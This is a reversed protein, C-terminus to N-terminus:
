EFLSFFDDGILSDTSVDFSRHGRPLPEDEFQRTPLISPEVFSVSLQSSPCADFNEYEQCQIPQRSSTTDSYFNTSSDDISDNHLHDYLSTWEAKRRRQLDQLMMPHMPMPVRPIVESDVSVSCSLELTNGTYSTEESPQETTVSSV